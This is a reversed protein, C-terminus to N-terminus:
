GVYPADTEVVMHEVDLSKIITRRSKSHLPTISILGGMEVAREAEALTGSFFHMMFPQQEQRLQLFDLVDHTAKRAHIVIPKKMEDALALMRRFVAKEKEIQQEDEAWHYDLGIEGIANPPNQRIFDIWEDLKDLESKIATQPAIGLVFPIGLEKAIAVTKVNTGHSYGVTVPLVGETLKYDKKMNVLHCHSDVLRM